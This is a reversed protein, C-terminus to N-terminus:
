EAPAPGGGGSANGDPSDPPKSPPESTPMSPDFDEDTKRAEESAEEKEPTELGPYENVPPHSPMDLDEPPIHLNVEDRVTNLYRRFQVYVRAAKRAATPLDRGYILVAVILVLLIEALGFGM